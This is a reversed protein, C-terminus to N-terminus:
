IVAFELISELMKPIRSQPLNIMILMVRSLLDVLHMVLSKLMIVEIIKCNRLHTHTSNSSFLHTEGGVRVSVTEGAALKTVTVKPTGYELGDSGGGCGALTLMAGLTLILIRTM